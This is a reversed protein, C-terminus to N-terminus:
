RGSFGGARAVAVGLDGVEVHAVRGEIELCAQPQEVRLEIGVLHQHGRREGGGRSIKQVDNVADFRPLFNGEDVGAVVEEFGDRIAVTQRLFIAKLHEVDLGLVPLVLERAVVLGPLLVGVEAALGSIAIPIVALSVLMLYLPFLWSATVLHRENGNEVVAVQFQRPLCLIAAASLFTTAVWRAEFGEAFSFLKSADANQAAKAFLDAFGDHLGFTAFLAIAGLSFLKVFSEFAIAAVIGPHHEDAGLNRTGFLIVFTAMCVAVWFGTDGILTWETGSSPNWGSGGGLADFSAAVAKLQLAIYPTIGILAILTVLVSISSSKGYRASIFDAISTIRQANSIRVLKRLAFPWAMLVLTPGLYITLFELGSRAATGVAGYFTWSTCYVALSLTYVVPSNILGRAGRKARRDSIYALLFLGGLYLSAIVVIFAGNLM